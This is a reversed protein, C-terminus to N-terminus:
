TGLPVQPGSFERAPFLLSDREGPSDGLLGLQQEGIFGGACEVRRVTLDHDIDKVSDRAVVTRSNEADAM